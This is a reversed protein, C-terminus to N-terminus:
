RLTQLAHNEYGTRLYILFAALAALLIVLVVTRQWEKM